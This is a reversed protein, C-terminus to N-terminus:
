ARNTCRLFRCFWLQRKQETKSVYGRLLCRIIFQRINSLCVNALMSYRTRLPPWCHVALLFIVVRTKPAPESNEVTGGDGNGSDTAAEKGRSKKGKKGSAPAAPTTGNGNSASVPDQLSVHRMSALDSICGLNIESFTKEKSLLIRGPTSDCVAFM